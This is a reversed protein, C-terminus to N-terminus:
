RKEGSSMIENWLRIAALDSVSWRHFSGQGCPCAVRYVDRLRGEPRDTELTTPKMGCSACPYIEPLEKRRMCAAYDVQINLALCCFVGYGRDVLIGSVPGCAM